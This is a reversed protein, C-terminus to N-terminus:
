WSWNTSLGLLFCGSLRLWNSDSKEGKAYLVFGVILTLRAFQHIDM